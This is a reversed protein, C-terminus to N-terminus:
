LGWEDLLSKGSATEPMAAPAPAPTPTPTSAPKPAETKKKKEEEEEEDEYESMDVAGILDELLDADNIIALAAADNEDAAMVPGHEVHISKHAPAQPKDSTSTTTPTTPRGGAFTGSGAFVDYISAYPVCENKFEKWQLQYEQLIHKSFEISRRVDAPIKLFRHFDINRSIIHLCGTLVELDDSGEPIELEVLTLFPALINMPEPLHEHLFAIEDQNRTIGILSCLGDYDDRYKNSIIVAQEYTTKDVYLYGIDEIPLTMTNVVAPVLREGNTYVIM